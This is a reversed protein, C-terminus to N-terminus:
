DIEDEDDEDEDDEFHYDDDEDDEPNNKEYEDIVDLVANLKEISINISKKIDKIDSSCVWHLRKEKERAVTVLNELDDEDDVLLYKAINSIMEEKELRQDQERKTERCQKEYDKKLDCLATIVIEEYSKKKKRM